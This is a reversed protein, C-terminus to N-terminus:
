PNAQPIDKPYKALASSLSQGAKIQNIIDTLIKRLKVSSAQAAIISLAETLSISSALMTGLHRAFLMKDMLPVGGFSIEMLGFSTKGKAQIKKIYWGKSVLLKTAERINEAELVGKSVKNDQDIVTYVFRM